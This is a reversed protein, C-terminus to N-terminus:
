FFSRIKLYTCPMVKFLFSIMRQKFGNTFLLAPVKEKLDNVIDKRDKLIVPYHSIYWLNLSFTVFINNLLQTRVQSSIGKMDKLNWLRAIVQNLDLTTKKCISSSLSGHRRRYIYFPFTLRISKEAKLFSETSFPIDEFTIGEIFTIKNKEIFLRNYLARWVFCEYPSFDEFYLQTGSKATADTTTQNTPIVIHTGKDSITIYDAFILDAKSQFAVNLITNLSNGILLDDSDLFLVYEGKAHALGTNRAASLGRNVHHRLCIFHVGGCYNKIMEQAIIMSNDPSCDDVLICEVNFGIVAQNMVSYLCDKIYKEVKYVPIIISISHM